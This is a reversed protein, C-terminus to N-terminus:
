HKDGAVAFVYFGLKHGQYWSKVFHSGAIGTTYKADYSSESSIVGLGNLDEGISYKIYNFVFKCRDAIDLDWNRSGLIKKLKSDISSDSNNTHVVNVNRDYTRFWAYVYPSKFTVYHMDFGYAEDDYSAVFWYRWPYNKELMAQVNRAFTTHSDKLNNYAYLRIKQKAEKFFNEEIDDTGETVVKLM